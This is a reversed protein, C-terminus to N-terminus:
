KPKQMRAAVTMVVAASFRAAVRAIIMASLEAAPLLAYASAARREAASVGCARWGNYRAVMAADCRRCPPVWVGRRDSM